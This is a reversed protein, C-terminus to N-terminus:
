MALASRSATLTVHTALIRYGRCERSCSGRRLLNRPPALSPRCILDHAATVRDVKLIHFEEGKANQFRFQFQCCFDQVKGSSLAPNPQVKRFDMVAELGRIIAQGFLSRLFIRFHWTLSLLCFFLPFCVRANLLFLFFPGATMHQEHRALEKLRPSPAGVRGLNRQILMIKSPDSSSTRCIPTGQRSLSPVEDVQDIVDAIKRHLALLDPHDSTMAFLSNCGFCFMESSNIDLGVHPGGKPHSGHAATHASCFILGCQACMFKSGGCISGGRRNSMHCVWSSPTVAKAWASPCVCSSRAVRAHICEEKSRKVPSAVAAGGRKAVMKLINVAHGHQSRSTVVVLVPHRREFHGKKPQRVSVRPLQHTVEATIFLSCIQHGADSTKAIRSGNGGLALSLAASKSRRSFKVLRLPREEFVFGFCPKKPM